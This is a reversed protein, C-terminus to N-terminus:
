PREHPADRLRGRHAEPHVRAGDGDELVFGKRAFPSVLIVPLRFGPTYGCREVNPAVHDYFGGWDDWTIVIAMEKWRPSQMLRNTIKISFNEGNCPGAPPHESLELPGPVNAYVLNPLDGKDLDALLSNLPRLHAKVLAPDGGVHLAFNFPSAM